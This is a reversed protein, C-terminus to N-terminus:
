ISKAILASRERKAATTDKVGPIENGLTFTSFRRKSSPRQRAM